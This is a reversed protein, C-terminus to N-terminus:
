MLGGMVLSLVVQSQTDKMIEMETKPIDELIAVNPTASINILALGNITTKLRKGTPIEVWLFPVGVPERIGGSKIDLIYGTSDYIILTDM